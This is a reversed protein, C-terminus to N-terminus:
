KADMFGADHRLFQTKAFIKARRTDDAARRPEVDNSRREASQGGAFNRGILFPKM